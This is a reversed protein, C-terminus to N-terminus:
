KESLEDSESMAAARTHTTSMSAMTPTEPSSAKKIKRSPM